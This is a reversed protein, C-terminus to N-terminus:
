QLPQSTTNGGKLSYTGGHLQTELKKATRGMLKPIM